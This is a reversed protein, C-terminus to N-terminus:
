ARTEYPLPDELGAEQFGKLRLQCADCVGCAKERGYYCSWTLEFPVGLETGRQVIQQKTMHILPTRIEIVDGEIGRKTGLRAVEKFAEYYEPRCDPYGSNHALIGNAVFNEAGEVSLDYMWPSRTERIHAVRLFALKSTALRRLSPVSAFASRQSRYSKDYKGGRNYIRTKEGPPLSAEAVAKWLGPCKWLGVAQDRGKVTGNAIYSFRKSPFRTPYLQVFRRFDQARGILLQEQDGPAERAIPFIGDLNFTQHLDRVLAHSKQSLSTQRKFTHSGDGDWLGAVILRRQRQSLDWFFPPFTKSGAKSTGSLGLYDFLAVVVSSNVTYDSDNQPSKSINVCFGEFYSCLTETAGPIGGISFALSSAKSGPTRGGEALWLGLIYLLEDTVPFSVPLRTRGLRNTVHGNEERISWPRSAERCFRAIGNLPLADMDTDWADTVDSLDYPVVIPTGERIQSGYVTRIQATMPDITFLSHDETITIEQGRELRVEFCKKKRSDHRFRGTVQRWELQLTELNVAVTQWDDGSLRCAEEIGSLRARGSRRLWVKTEGGVSYDIANAAIYISEAGTAEAFALAHSLFVTNRAPVYTPPIGAGIEEYSRREPIGIRADTLASAGIGSFDLKLLRHEEIGFHRAIRRAARIEKRHRQGYEFTLAFVSCGQEKAVALATASDMGGSLLVIAKEAM